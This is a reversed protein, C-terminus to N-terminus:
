NNVAFNGSIATGNHSWHIHLYVDSGTVHDHPWHLKSDIIDNVIFSWEWIDDSWLKWTPSGAGIKKPQIPGELDRWPFTPTTTDVKIGKGATKPFIVDDLFKRINPSIDIM